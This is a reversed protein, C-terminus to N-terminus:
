KFVTWAELVSSFENYPFATYGGLGWNTGWSNRLYFENEKDDYGVLTVAHYGIPGKTTKRWFDSDYSYVPLAILVPGNATMAVKTASINKITSYSSIIGYALAVDFANRPSMGDQNKDSRHNYYFDVHRKYKGSQGLLKYKYKIMDTACVSVCIGRDGQDIPADLEEKLSYTEPLTGVIPNFSPLGFTISKVFGLGYM